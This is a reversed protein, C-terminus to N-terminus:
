RNPRRSHFELFSRDVEIPEDLRWTNGRKVIKGSVTFPLRDRFAIIALGMDSAGLPVTVRRIRGTVEAHVVIEGGSEEETGTGEDYRRLEKVPGVVTIREPETRRVLRREIEPLQDILSRDLSVHDPVPMHQPEAPAWEFSLDLSRIGESGGIDQLAQVVQLKLGQEVADGIGEFQERSAAYRRTTDLSRALATMTRRAFSPVPERTGVEGSGEPVDDEGIRAAVTVIFSGKKTHGMRVDENLFETVTDPIRGRGTAQPNHAAIAAARVIQDISDLLSSAQRLPITGDDFRQDVRIYFLDARISAVKEALEPLGWDYTKSITEIAETMRKAYDVFSPTRPLLVSVPRGGGSEDLVWVQDVKRDTRCTWDRTALFQAINAPTLIDGYQGIPDALNAAAM